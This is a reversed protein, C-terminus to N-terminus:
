MWLILYRVPIVWAMGAVAYFIFEVVGNATPLIMVAFRMVLLAYIALVFLLVFVGIFKKWRMPMPATYCPTCPSALGQIGPPVAGVQRPRSPTPSRELRLSECWRRPLAAVYTIPMAAM